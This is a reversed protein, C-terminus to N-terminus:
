WLCIWLSCVYKMFFNGEYICANDAWFQDPTDHWRVRNWYIREGHDDATGETLFFFSTSPDKVSFLIIELMSTHM